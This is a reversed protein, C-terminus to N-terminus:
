VSFFNEVHAKIRKLYVYITYICYSHVFHIMKCQKKILTICSQLYM